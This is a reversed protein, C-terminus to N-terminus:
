PQRSPKVSDSPASGPSVQGHARASPSASANNGQGHVPPAAAVQLADLARNRAKTIASVATPNTVQGQLGALQNDHIEVAQKLKQELSGAVAPDTAKITRVLVAASTLQDDLQNLAQDALDVRHSAFMAEAERLRTRALALHHDFRDGPTLAVIGQVNEVAGKIPYLASDPLSDAAAGVAGAVLLAAAALGALMLRGRSASKRSRSSPKQLEALALNWARIKAAPSPQAPEIARLREAL